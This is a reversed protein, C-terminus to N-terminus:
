VKGGAGGFLVLRIGCQHLLTLGNGGLGPRGVGKLLIGDLCCLARVHQVGIHPHGLTLRNLNPRLADVVKGGVLDILIQHINCARICYKHVTQGSVMIQFSLYTTIYMFLEAQVTDFHRFIYEFSRIRDYEIFSFVTHM